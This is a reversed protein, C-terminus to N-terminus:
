ANRRKMRAVFAAAVGLLVLAGGAIGVTAPLGAGTVALADADAAANADAAADVDAVPAAAPEAHETPTHVIDYHVEPANEDPIVRYTFENDTLETIPVVRTFMPEGNDDFATITRTSGEAAVEWDGQMKPSDDLNYMTFTGNVDYYAWGVFNAVAENDLAVPNGDQDVAGTTEWATSALVESPSQAANEAVAVVSTFPSTAPAMTGATAFAGAAPLLCMSTAVVATAALLQGRGRLRTRQMPASTASDSHSIRDFM